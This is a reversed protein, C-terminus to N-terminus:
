ALPSQALRHRVRRLVGETLAGRETVVATFWAAPTADFVVNSVRMGREPGPLVHDPEQRELAVPWGPPAVKHTQCAAYAPIGRERAALALLRTGAKNILRDDDTIADAGVLVADAREVELGVQADTILRVRLGRLALRGALALGEYRPRSETVVVHAKAQRRAWRLLAKESVAGASHTLVTRAGSLAKAAQAATRETAHALDAQIAGASPASRSVALAVVHPIVAMSPRLSALARAAPVLTGPEGRAERTRAFADLAQLAKTALATAGSTYDAAIEHAARWLGPSGFPPWVSGVVEALGPVTPLLPVEEPTVWRSEASEWDPEPERERGLAFLFPYVLWRHGEAEDDVRVPVGLGRLRVEGPGIGVEEELERYAQALPIREVYGSVGAWRGGYTGVKKSRRLLLIRGRRVLFAGVVPTRDLADDHPNTTM